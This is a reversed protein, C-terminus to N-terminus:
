FLGPSRQHTKSVNRLDFFIVKCRIGKGAEQAFQFYKGLSNPLHFMHDELLSFFFSGLSGNITQKKGDNDSNDNHKALIIIIGLLTLILVIRLRVFVDDNDDDNNDDDDDDALILTLCIHCTGTCFHRFLVPISYYRLL